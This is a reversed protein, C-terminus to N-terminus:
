NICDLINFVKKLVGGLTRSTWSTWPSFLFLLFFIFSNFTHSVIICM